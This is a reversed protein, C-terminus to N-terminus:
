FVTVIKKYNMKARLRYISWFLELLRHTPYKRSNNKKKSLKDVAETSFLSYWSKKYFLM